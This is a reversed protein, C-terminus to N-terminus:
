LRVGVQESWKTAWAAKQKETAPKPAADVPISALLFVLLAVMGIALRSGFQTGFKCILTMTKMNGRRQDRLNYRNICVHANENYATMPM